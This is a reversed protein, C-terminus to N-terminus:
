AADCTRSLEQAGTGDIAYAVLVVLGSLEAEADQEVPENVLLSFANMATYQCRIFFTFEETVDTEHYSDFGHFFAYYRLVSAKHCEMYTRLAHARQELPITPLAELRKAVHYVGYDQDALGNLVLHRFDSPLGPAAAMTDNHCKKATEVMAVVRTANQESSSSTDLQPPLIGAAYSVGLGIAVIISMAIVRRWFYTIRPRRETTPNTPTTELTM